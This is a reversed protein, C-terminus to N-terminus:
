RVWSPDMLICSWDRAKSPPNLIQRQQSSQCLYFIPSPDPMTTATTYALLQLESEVGLRPGEMHMSTARFFLFCVFLFFPLCPSCNWPTPISIPNLPLSPSEPLGAVAARLNSWRSPGCQKCVSFKSLLLSSIPHWVFQYLWLHTHQYVIFVSFWDHWIEEWFNFFM